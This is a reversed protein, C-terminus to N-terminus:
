YIMLMNDAEFLEAIYKYIDFHRLLDLEENILQNNSTIGVNGHRHGVHKSGGDESRTIKGTDTHTTTDTDTHTNNLKKTDTFETKNDPQYTDRNEASTTNETVEGGSHTDQYSGNNKKNESWGGSRAETSGGSTEDTYEQYEDVNEIPSYEAQIVKILHAFTWQKDYFWDRVIARFVEPEGYVPTLMGCRVVIASRVADRNIPDPVAIGELPDPLEM